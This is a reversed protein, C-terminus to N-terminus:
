RKWHTTDARDELTVDLDALRERILDATAFQKEKRLRSRLEVLLDLLPGTLTDSVESEPAPAKRFLGLIATLERLVVLGQAFSARAEATGGAELDTEDAHRNLVRILEHLIGFAGGTNFDDDMAELFRDRLELADAPAGAVARDDRRTPAELDHFSPGDIREARDFLNRFAALGKAVEDLRKNQFDTPRRYHGSLLLARITDPDFRELLPGMEVITEPDSKSIKRGDKTLLGNHLWYKAFPKGTFSESQARENEHHPFVLDLGGGHIDFQEGLLKLSMASCEIHWGPRGLGWPSEWAPEGPKSGKWLAFDGPHRKQATPEIRAGAQLAEPDRHSLEGYGPSKTVDYYVDGGAEYAHGREILGATMALIETIHATARPLRDIGTVNLVDLCRLYDATVSEALAKVKAEVDDPTAGEDQVRRILKDDIDTINVVWDVDYGNYELHRKITDFIVPGVMHGIHSFSYVTPGCLYMGVRGTQLPEFPEKAQTLTNYVRLPM